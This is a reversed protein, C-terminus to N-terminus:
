QTARQCRHKRGRLYLGALGVALLGVAGPEPIAKAFIEARYTAINAALTFQDAGPSGSVALMIGSLEYIGGNLSFVGGGSDGAVAQALSPPNTATSNFHTAFVMTDGYTTIKMLRQPQSNLDLMAGNAVNQGWRKTRSNDINTSFGVMSLTQVNSPLSTGLQLTVLGSPNSNVNIQFMALDAYTSLTGWNPYNVGTNTLQVYSGAVVNYASGFQVTNPLSNSNIHAATIVWYTGNNNIDGLYVASGDGFQGVNNWPFTGPNSTYTPDAGAAVIVAQGPAVSLLNLAGALGLSLALLSSSRLSTDHSRRFRDAVFRLHSRLLRM